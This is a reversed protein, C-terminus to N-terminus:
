PAGRDAHHGEGMLRIYGVYGGVERKWLLVGAKTDKTHGLDLVRGDKSAIGTGVLRSLMVNFAAADLGEIEKVMKDRVAIIPAVGTAEDTVAGAAVALADMFLQLGMPFELLRVHERRAAEAIADPDISVRVTKGDRPRVTAKRKKSDVQVEILADDISLRPFRSTSDIPLGRARLADVVHRDLDRVLADVEAELASVLVAALEPRAAALAPDSAAELARSLERRRWAEVVVELRRTAADLVRLELRMQDGQQRLGGLEDNVRSVLEDPADM